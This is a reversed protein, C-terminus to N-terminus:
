TTTAPRSTSPARSCRSAPRPRWSMSRRSANWASRSCTPSCRRCTSCSSCPCARSRRAVGADARGAREPRRDLRRDDLRRGPRAGLSPRRRTAIPRAPEGAARTPTQHSQPSGGLAQVKPILEDRVKAMALQVSGSTRRSPSTTPRVRRSRTSRRRRARRPSRASCSSPFSRTRRACSSWRRSGTMEPMEVDMVVVDPQIQPSSRCRSGATADRAGRGRDRPRVLARRHADAPHRGLRGRDLVRVKGM